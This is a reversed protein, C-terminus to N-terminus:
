INLYRIFIILYYIYENYKNYYWYNRIKWSFEPTIYNNLYFELYFNSKVDLVLLHMSTNYYFKLDWRKRLIFVLKKLSSVEWNIVDICYKGITWNYFGMDLYWYSFSCIDIFFPEKYIRKSIYKIIDSGDYTNKLTNYLSVNWSTTYINGNDRREALAKSSYVVDFRENLYFHYFIYKIIEKDSIKFYILNDKSLSRYDIIGPDLTEILNYINIIHDKNFENSIIELKIVNGRKYINCSTGLVLGVIISIVIKHNNLNKLASM